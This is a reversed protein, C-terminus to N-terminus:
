NYLAKTGEHDTIQILPRANVGFESAKQSQNIFEVDNDIRIIKGGTLSSITRKTIFNSEYDFLGHTDRSWTMCKM